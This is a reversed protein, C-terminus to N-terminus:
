TLKNLHTKSKQSLSQSHQKWNKKMSPIHTTGRAEAALVMVPAVNWGKTIINNILPQYKKSKKDLTEYAFRGNCYTFEIFQITIDPTPTELPTNYPHGIICLLNPKLRANCHCRQTDCTCPLSWPPVMNEQSLENHTWANMLIYHRSIRTSVILKRMEWIAKNHIKTILAHIHQQKCKLLVHLWADVYTSNCIPCTRSPFAERGFFLQKRHSGYITQHPIQTLMNKKSIQSPPIQGFIM